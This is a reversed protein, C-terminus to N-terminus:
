RLDTSIGVKPLARKEDEFTRNGNEQNMADEGFRSVLLIMDELRTM